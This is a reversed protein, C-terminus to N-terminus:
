QACGQGIIAAVRGQFEPSAVFAQRVQERTNAGSAIQSIWFQVGGLDGGRRLFANYLDGVYQANSRGRNNYQASNAFASSISEVQANVAAGGQCQATRFLGLWYAFGTDDPLSGLLGRYFDQVTDIERRVSMTGFIAQTFNAFETSFMFSALVVERPMGAALLGTWEAFGGADPARNFFTGYLDTVYGADDRGLARYEASSYFSGAMAFWVENVNVGLAQVRAAEAEWYSKGGADPARRLISHYYHTVLSKEGTGALAMTTTGSTAAITLTGNLSGQATPTFTVNATCSGGAALTSCNHTVAFHSSTTISNVTAASGGQNAITVVQAPATTNMSQGAFDLSAASLLVNAGTLTKFSIISGATSNGAPDASVVRAYYTTNAVLNTLTIQHSKAYEIEGSVLTLTSEGLGYQVLANSTEDTTWEIRASEGTTAVAQAATVIVPATTDAVADTTFTAAPAGGTFLSALAAVLASKIANM